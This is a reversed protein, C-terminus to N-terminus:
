PLHRRSMRSLAPMGLCNTMNGSLKAGSALGRALKASAADPIPREIIALGAGPKSRMAARCRELIVHCQEDDWDHLICSLVYLDGGVPIEEFAFRTERNPAREGAILESDWESLYNWRTM